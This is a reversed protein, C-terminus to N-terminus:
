SLFLMLTIFLVFIIVVKTSGILEKRSTWNVKKMESDTAILFDVNPPKNIVLFVLLSLVCFALSSAFCPRPTTPAHLDSWIPLYTYFFNGHAPHDAGSGVTGM